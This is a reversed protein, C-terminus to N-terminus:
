FTPNEEPIAFANILSGIIGYHGVLTVAEIIQTQGLEDLARGFTQESLSSTRRLERALDVLVKERPTLGDLGQSRVAEIAEPRTGAERGRVEHRAWAFRAGADRATALIVLERDAAPLEAETRFFDEVAAVREALHPRNILVSFPGRMAAGSRGAVIRDWIAQDESALTARDVSPLRSM